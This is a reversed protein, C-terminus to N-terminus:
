RRHVARRATRRARDHRSRVSRLGGLDPEAVSTVSGGPPRRGRRLVPRDQRRRGDWGPHVCAIDTRQSWMAEMASVDRKAFADYFAENATLVESEQDAGEALLHLVQWHRRTLGEGAVVSDLAEERLADLRKVWWGIPREDDM